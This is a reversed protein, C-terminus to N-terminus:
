KSNGNNTKDHSYEAANGTRLIKRYLWLKYANHICMSIWVIPIIFIGFLLNKIPKMIQTKKNILYIKTDKYEKPYRLLGIGVRYLSM